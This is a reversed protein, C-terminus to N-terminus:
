SGRRPRPPTLRPPRVAFELARLVAEASGHHSWRRVRELSSAGMRARRVPDDVLPRLCRVLADVDGTPFVCGNDEGVLDPVAGVVESAVIPLAFNMAENVVLGWPERQSPLVLVDSALYVRALEEQGQFGIFRVREFGLSRARQELAARERGEGALVLWARPDALRECAALLDGVCKEPALRGAYLIVVADRPLGFRSRIETRQPLGALRQRQFFDNDVGYPTLFLKEEPVGHRRYFEANRTGVTLFASCRRFLRTLIAKKIWRRGPRTPDASNADSRLLVPIGCAMCVLHALWVTLGFWGSVVAADHVRPHLRALLEPHFTGTFRGRDPRPARNRPFCSRYGELVPYDTQYRGFDADAAAGVGVDSLYYVTLDLLPHAALVRFWASHYPQPRIAIVALRYNRTSM